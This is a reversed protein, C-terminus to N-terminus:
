FKRKYDIPYKLVLQVDYHKFSEVFRKNIVDMHYEALIIENYYWIKHSSYSKYIRNLYDHYNLMERRTTTYYRIGYLENNVFLLVIEVNNEGFLFNGCIIKDIRNNKITDYETILTDINILQIVNEINDGFVFVDLVKHQRYDIDFPIVLILFILFLKM